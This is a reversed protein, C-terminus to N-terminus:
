SRSREGESGHGKHGHGGGRHGREGREDRRRKLEAKQEDTLISQVQRHMESKQLAMAAVAAGIQDAYAKAQTADYNGSEGLERLSQRAARMADRHAKMGAKGSERMSALQDRQEQTLDLGHFMGKGGREGKRGHREHGGKGWRSPECSDGHGQAQEARQMRHGRDDDSALAPAQILAGATLLGLTLATAARFFTKPKNMM